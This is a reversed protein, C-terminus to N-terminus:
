VQAVAPVLQIAAHIIHTGHMGHERLVKTKILEGDQYVCVWATLLGSSSVDLHPSPPFFAPPPPVPRPPPPASGKWVM